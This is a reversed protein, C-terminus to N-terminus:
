RPFDDLLAHGDELGAVVAVRWGAL